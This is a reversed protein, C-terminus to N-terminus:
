TPYTLAIRRSLRLEVFVRRKRREALICRLWLPWTLRPMKEQSSYFPTM